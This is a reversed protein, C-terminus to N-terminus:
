DVQQDGKQYVRVYDVLFQSPFVTEDTNGGCDGGLALNLILYHPQLFPQRILRKNNNSIDTRISNILVDDVYLDINNKDWDMRWVHFKQTWLPDNRELTAMPQKFSSVEAQYPKPKGWMFNALISNSYFELLDIEGCNPWEGEQGLFWIAPWLGQENRIKAKIEFRGYQWHHKDKTMLSASTLYAHRRKESWNTSSHHYNPNEITERKAEIVLFGNKCFANKKQYYQEEHNRIFGEEHVWHDPNPAGDVNFEDSWVLQYTEESFGNATVMLLIM